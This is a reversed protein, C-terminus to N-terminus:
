FSLTVDAAPSSSTADAAPLRTAQIGGRQCGATPGWAKWVRAGAAGAGAGQLAQVACCLVARCLLMGRAKGGVTWLDEIPGAKYQRCYETVPPTLEVLQCTPNYQSAPVAPPGPSLTRPTRQDPPLRPLLEAPQCGPSCSCRPVRRSGLGGPHKMWDIM